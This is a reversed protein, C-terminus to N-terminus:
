DEKMEIDDEEDSDIVEVKLLYKERLVDEKPIVESFSKSLLSKNPQDPGDLVFLHTEEVYM